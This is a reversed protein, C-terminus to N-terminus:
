FPEYAHFTLEDYIKNENSPWEAQRDDVLIMPCTAGRVTLTANDAPTVRLIPEFYLTTEGAGDTSANRTLRKLESNVSFYDGAMMWNTVSATCGDINLTGGTQGAGKVQPTGAGGLGDICRVRQLSADPTV